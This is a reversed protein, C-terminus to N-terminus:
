LRDPSKANMWLKLIHITEHDYSYFITTQSSYQYEKTGSKRTSNKHRHPADKIKELCHELRTFFALLEKETWHNELYEVIEHLGAKAEDTWVITLAM